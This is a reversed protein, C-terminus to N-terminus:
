PGEDPWSDDCRATPDFMPSRIALEAELRALVAAHAADPDLAGQRLAACLRAETDRLTDAATQPERPAPAPPEGLLTHWADLDAQLRAPGDTQETAAVSLLHAAIRARFAAGKDGPSPAALRPRVQQELYLAVARLVIAVDPQASALSM